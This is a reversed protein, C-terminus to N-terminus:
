PGFVGGPILWQLFAFILMYLIMAIIANTIRKKAASVATSNDRAVSYQIGGLIIMAIVIVGVGASLTNIALKLYTIVPNNALCKDQGAATQADNACGNGVVPLCRTKDNPDVHSGPCDSDTLTPSAGGGTDGGTAAFAPLQLPALVLLLVTIHALIIKKIKHM